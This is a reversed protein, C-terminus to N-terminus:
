HRKNKIFGKKRGFDYSLYAALYFPKAKNFAMQQIFPFVMDMCIGVELAQIRYDGSAFDFNIGTKAYFGPRFTTGLWGYLFSTGGMITNLNYIEPDYRVIEPFGTNYNYVEVYSPIGIGVSFGGSVTYRIQVGGWYPKHNLIRQYGYGGRLFFLTYLQGYRCPKVDSYLLNTSRVSKPHQNYLLEVEWFHKNLNDATRGHQFGLGFGGTHVTLEFNWEKCTVDHHVEGVDQAVIDSGCCLLFVLWITHKLLDAVSKM